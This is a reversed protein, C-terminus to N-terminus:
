LTMTTPRAEPIADECSIIEHLWIFVQYCASHAGCCDDWLLNGQRMFVPIDLHIEKLSKNWDFM